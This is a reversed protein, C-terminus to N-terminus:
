PQMPSETPLTLPPSIKPSPAPLPKTLTEPQASPTAIKQEESIKKQLAALEDKAKQFDGSDAPVLSIVTEMEQTARVWDKKEKLAASFNYHANAFDPKLAVANEFQRTAEDWRSLSYYVGGLDLRLLPNTPDLNIAQQYAAITWTDAGNAFNILNRYLLALNEWNTIKPPQLAIAAKASAIAQQVLQTINARDQDTLDKRSALSNALAFNTQSYAIRYRDLWPNQQIAAIQYNYTQVGNNALAAVLSKQFYFEALGARALLFSSALVFIAGLTAILYPLIRGEEVIRKQPLSSAIIVLLLYCTVILLFNPPLFLQLLFILLTAIYGNLWKAMYGNLLTAKTKIVRWILFVYAGLGLIGVESLLQLYWNASVGFRASWLPSNNFSLPKFLTFASLFNAPGVGLLSIRWNKAGEVAVAWASGFPLLIPKVSTLLQYTTVGLGAAILLLSLSFLVYYYPPAPKQSQAGMAEQLATKPKAFEEFLRAVLLALAIGLFIGQSLLSGTPSFFKQSLWAPLALGLIKWFEAFWFLSILSLLSASAVLSYSIATLQYSNSSNVLLFYLLTLLIIVGPGLPSLFAEVKNPSQFIASLQYSIALLLVPLDLPTLKIEVRHNLISKALWLVLLISVAFFLLIIKPFDFFDTLVPLFFLPLLFALAASGWKAIEDLTKM